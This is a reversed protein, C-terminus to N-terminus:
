KNKEDDIWDIMSALEILDRYNETKVNNMKLNLHLYTFWNIANDGIYNASGTQDHGQQLKDKVEDIKSTEHTNINWIGYEM